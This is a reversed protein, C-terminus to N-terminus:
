ERGGLGRASRSCWRAGPTRIGGDRAETASRTLPCEAALCHRRVGRDGPWRGLAGVLGGHPGSASGAVAARTFGVSGGPGALEATLEQFSGIDVRTRGAAAAAGAEARASSAARM